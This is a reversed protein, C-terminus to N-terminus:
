EPLRDQVSGRTAMEPETTAIPPENVVAPTTTPTTPAPQVPESAPQAAARRADRLAKIHDHAVQVERYQEEVVARLEPPLTIKLADRYAKVSWDEGRETEELIAVDSHGTVLGKVTIWAGHVMGGLGSPHPVDFGMGKVATQIEDAFRARQRSYQEFLDRLLPDRAADAAAGFGQEADRCIGIVDKVAAALDDLTGAM